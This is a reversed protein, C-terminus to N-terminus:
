PWSPRNGPGRAPTPTDPYLPVRNWERQEGDLARDQFLLQIREELGQVVFGLGRGRQGSRRGGNGLFRFISIPRAAAAAGRHVAQHPRRARGPRLYEPRPFLEHQSGVAQLLCNTLDYFVCFFTAPRKIVLSSEEPLHQAHGTEESRPSLCADAVYVVAQRTHSIELSGSTLCHRGSLMGAANRQAGQKTQPCPQLSFRPDLFHAAYSPPCGLQHFTVERVCAPPERSFGIGSCPGM